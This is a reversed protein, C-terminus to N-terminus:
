IMDLIVGPYLPNQKKKMEPEGLCEARENIFYDKIKLATKNEMLWRFSKLVAPDPLIKGFLELCLINKKVYARFEELSLMGDLNTDIVGVLMEIMEKLQENTDEDSVTYFSNKLLQMMDVMQIFGTKTFNYVHFVFDIRVDLDSSFFICIVRVYDEVRISQSRPPRTAELMLQLHYRSSIGFRLGMQAIFVLDEIIDPKTPSQLCKAYQIINMVTAKSVGTYSSIRAALANNKRVIEDYTAM